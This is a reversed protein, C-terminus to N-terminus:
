PGPLLETTRGSWWYAVLGIWERVALDLRKLGDPLSGFPRLVDSADRLRFDVPYPIVDFGARRFVGCARPMHYASTVLAWRQGAKPKLLDRTFAANEHTNRSKAEVVIRGEAIGADILFRRVPEEVTERDFLSGSGGTFIVMAGPIRLALRLGETLREASENVALGARGATVWGDEFGGLIIIGEVQGTPIEPQREGFREEIPALLMNGIPLFGAIALAGLAIGGLRVGFRRWRDGASLALGIALALFLLNSPQVIFFLIKSAAFFM